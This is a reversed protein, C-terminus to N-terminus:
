NSKEQLSYIDDARKSSKVCWTGCALERLNGFSVCSVRKVCSALKGSSVQKGFSVLKVCSVRKGCSACSIGCSIQM